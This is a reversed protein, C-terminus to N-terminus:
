DKTDLTILGYHGDYRRYLVAGEGDDADIFFLFPDNSLNLATVADSLPIRPPVRSSVPIPTDTEGKGDGASRILEYGGNATRYVVNEEGTDANRFLFFDHDLLDMDFVAEEPTCPATTFSKRRVIDREEAPHDFIEPRDATDTDPEPVATRRARRREVFRTVRSRLRDSFRDIAEQMTTAAVQARIMKGGVNLAGEVKAPRVRAPAPPESLEMTLRLQGNLIRDEVLDAVRALKERALDLDQPKVDGESSVDIPFTTEAPM